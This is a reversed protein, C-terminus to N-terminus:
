EGYLIVLQIKNKGRNKFEKYQLKSILFGGAVMGIPWAITDGVQSLDGSQYLSNVSTAILFIVGGGIGLYGLNKITSNRPDKNKIYISTIDSPVLLNETLVIAEPTIDVIKDTVYFDLEKSKYTLDEGIEFKLRSKQNSGRQLLIFKQSFAEEM